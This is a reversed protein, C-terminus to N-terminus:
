LEGLNFMFKLKSNLIEAKVNGKIFKSTENELNLDIKIGTNILKFNIDKYNNKSVYSIWVM